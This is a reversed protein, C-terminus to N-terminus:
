YGDCDTELLLFNKAIEKSLPNHSNRVFSAAQKLIALKVFPLFEQFSCRKELLQRIACIIFKVLCEEFGKEFEPQDLKEGDPGRRFHEINGFGVFASVGNEKAADILSTSQCAVCFVSKGRLCGIESETMWRPQKTGADDTSHEGLLLCGCLGHSLIIVTGSDGGDLSNMVEEADSPSGLRRVVSNPLNVSQFARVVEELFSLNDCNTMVLSM